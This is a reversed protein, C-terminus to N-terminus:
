KKNMEIHEVKKKLSRHSYALADHESRLIKAETNMTSIEKSMEKITNETSVSSDLIGTLLENSRDARIAKNKLHRYLFFLGGLIGTILPWYKLLGALWIEILRLITLGEM